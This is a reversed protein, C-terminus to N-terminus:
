YEEESGDDTAKGAEELQRLFDEEADLSRPHFAEISKRPVKMQPRARKRM